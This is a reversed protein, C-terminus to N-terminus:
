RLTFVTKPSAAIKDCSDAKMVSAQQRTEASRAEPTPEQVGDAASQTKNSCDSM